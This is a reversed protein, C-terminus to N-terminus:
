SHSEAPLAANHYIEHVDDLEELRDM